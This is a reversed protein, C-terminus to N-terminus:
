AAVKPIVPRLEVTSSPESWHGWIAFGGAHRVIDVQVEDPSSLSGCIRLVQDQAQLFEARTYDHPLWCMWDIRRDAM